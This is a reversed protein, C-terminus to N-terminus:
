YEGGRINGHRPGPKKTPPELGIQRDLSRSLISKLSRSSCAQLLLARQSAAELREASYAKALRMIGLCSNISPRWNRCRVCQGRSGAPRPRFHYDSWNVIMAAPQYHWGVGSAAARELYRHVAQTEVKSEGL